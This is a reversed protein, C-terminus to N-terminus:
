IKGIYERLNNMKYSYASPIEQMEFAYALPGRDALPKLHTSTRTFILDAANQKVDASRGEGIRIKLHIYANDANGDGVLCDVEQLRIRLGAVPFIGTELMADRVGERFTKLEPEEAINKSYEIWAHPM